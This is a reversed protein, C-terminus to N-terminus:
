GPGRFNNIRLIRQDRFGWDTKEAVNGYIVLKSCSVFLLRTGTAFGVNKKGLPYIWM